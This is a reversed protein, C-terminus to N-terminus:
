QHPEQILLVDTNSQRYTEWDKIKWKHHCQKQPPVNTLLAFTCVKKHKIKSPRLSDNIKYSYEYVAISLLSSLGSESVKKNALVHSIGILEDFKQCRTKKLEQAIQEQNAFHYVIIADNNDMKIIHPTAINNQDMSFCPAIILLSMFIIPIYM